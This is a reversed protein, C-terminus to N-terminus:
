KHLKNYFKLIFSLTYRKFFILNVLFSIIISLLTVEIASIIWQFYTDINNTFLLGTCISCSAITLDALLLKFFFKPARFLIHNKLYVIFFVLRYLLAILMGIAVGILGFKYVLLLSLGINLSAEIISSWQTERFQGAAQIILNYCFQICRICVAATLIYAFIPVYYDAGKVGKTYLLTFPVILVATSSFLIISLSHLSWEFKSFFNKLEETQNKSFLEGLVPSMSSNFSFILQRVGNEILIYVAYISVDALSSMFTLIMMSANDQTITAIHQAFGNWKQKIPEETYRVKKNIPYHKKVYLFLLVPKIVFITVSVLKVLHIGGGAEIIIICLVTNLIVAIITLSIPIYAKYDAYLLLQNTLGFYYQSFSGIAIIVVLSSTYIWSFDDVRLPLLVTLVGTYIILLIAISRFFRNSSHVICSLDNNNGTALARYFNAKVVAGVGAECFSIFALFQTISAVLGNVDSGYAVLIFRPLIFGAVVSIIEYGLSSFTNLVISKGKSVM